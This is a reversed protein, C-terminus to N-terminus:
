PNQFWRQYWLQFMFLAWLEKRCDTKRSLHEAVLRSVASPDFLGQRELFAPDIAERLKPLLPGRLWESIPIAFGHKKRDLVDNPIRGRLLEKFLRKEKWAGLKYSSPARLLYEVVRTDLLPARSELAFRMTARDVKVLVEDMLFTRLYAWSWQKWFSADSGAERARSALDHEARSIDAQAAIEPRLLSSLTNSTFAGRWAVDRAWPDAIGLGRALRQAKFGFSFYGDGSPIHNLLPAVLWSSHAVLQRHKEIFFHAPVHQYGLLLEDGGDGSLAVTVHQRTFRSLLLQPLISPDALPEDFTQAAEDIMALADNMTLVDEHHELSLAKAVLRAAPREDHTADEFGITFAKIPRSSQRAASEAVVASDIGGSLFLGLPVEAVLRDRVADDIRSRLGELLSKRSEVNSEGEPCTWFSWAKEIKGNSWALATAPELKNVGSFITRPTPVADTRFYLGLSVPDIERTVVNAALLGKLESAFWLTGDRVTWHLPKKGLRDRALVLRQRSADWIAIAFMGNLRAFCEDGWEEYAHVIVETDSKTTFRHGLRALDDRVSLFGYIEGNLMAWVTGDENSLPQHGGAVDIISLRRFAFGVRPAEYFGEDEPGRRSIAASMRELATRSGGSGVFGAIGCMNVRLSSRSDFPREGGDRHTGVGM